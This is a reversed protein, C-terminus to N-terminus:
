ISVGAPGYMVVAMDGYARRRRVALGAITEPPTSSSQVRLVVTGDEALSDRLPEFIRRAVDDWDWSRSQPYPPDVFALDVPSGLAALWARLRAYADGRRIVSRDSAGLTEVNRRLRDLALRDRDAFCCVRAGRSLAELGLTGTGCFIDAVVADDIAASLIDFLSKKASSTMPRTTHKGKPALLKRGKYEGALIHM